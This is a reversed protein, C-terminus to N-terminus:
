KRHAHRIFRSEQSILNPISLNSPKVLAFCCKLHSLNEFM